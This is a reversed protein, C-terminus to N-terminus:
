KEEKEHWELVMRNTKLKNDSKSLYMGQLCIDFSNETGLLKKIKTIPKEM